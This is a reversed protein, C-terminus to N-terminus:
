GGAAIVEPIDWFDDPLGDIASWTSPSLNIGLNELLPDVPFLEAANEAEAAEQEEIGREEVSIAEEARRDLLDMQQRLREERVRALKLDELAKEHVRMAAEQEDRSDQIKKRLKQKQDSLRQFESQLVKVDCRTCQGNKECTGCKKVM